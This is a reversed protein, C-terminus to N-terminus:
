FALQVGITYTSTPPYYRVRGDYTEPDLGSEVDTITFLNTAGTYIRIKSLNFKDLVKQDFSYGIQINKLRLYSADRIWFDNYLFNNKNSAAEIRPFSANPNDPTWRDLVRTTTFIEYAPGENTAGYFYNEAKAVGQLFFNLDFGKYDASFNLSYEYRPNPNGIITRDDDNIEGDGNLDVLKIDGPKLESQNPQPAHNDIEQQTQFLGDSKYGYFSNIPEGEKLVTWGNISLPLGGFDTLENKIDTINFGVAYKFERDRNRYNLSLEWGKNSVSGINIESSELGVLPSIPLNLLMDKTKKHFWDATVGLKGKLLSFDIGINTQESTEWTIDENAYTSQSYGNVQVDNFSYSYNTNINSSFRYLGINQNGLQGWSGRFKLHHIADINGMFDENSIVWGASFSPFTGWKHGKAFRSSGDHRINAELLYRDKFSYNIRGLYSLLAWAESFGGNDKSVVDGTNLEPSDENYINQRSAWLSNASNEIREIGGLLNIAHDDGLTVGYNLISKLKHRTEDWRSELLESPTWQHVVNTLDNPDKFDFSAQFDKNRINTRLYTYDTILKLGKLINWDLGLNMSLVESVRLDTGSEKLAALANTNDKNLGYAGNPYQLVNVPSSGVMATIAEEFRNPKRSERSNFYINGRLNFSESLKFDTNLRTGIRESGTNYLLGDQDLYNVSLAVRAMESGGRISISHNQVPASKFLEDFMDTYPYAIPDNGSVTNQIYDDSYKEPLGANVLAENVLNLYDEAGVLEPLTATTQWGTYSNLNISLKGEKGRKTTILVVGNAARSGYISSSAADKLVSISEIDQMNIESIPSEIGDILVLPDTGASVSGIGRIKFGLTEEGPAGGRDVITLGTAVGQLAQRADTLPKISLEDGKISSVAGTLNAKKQTAYGVVVVEDLSAADELLTISMTTEMGVVVEKTAFGVFSIVLVASQDTVDLTFKGDFDTQTGNTTGKEVINAGPLPQGGTDTITGAIQIKQQKGAISEPKKAVIIKNNETISFNFNDGSLTEKLLKNAKIVGKKLHVKPTSKFLDEQYIFTYDTQERLLDFVEDITLTKDEDIVIKTNQSFIDGTSFSFVTTCFLLILTRM